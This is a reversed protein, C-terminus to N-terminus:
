SLRIMLFLPVSIKKSLNAGKFLKPSRYIIFGSVSTSNIGCLAVIVKVAIAIDLFPKILVDGIRFFADAKDVRMVLLQKTNWVATFDTDSGSPSFLRFVGATIDVLVMGFDAIVEIMDALKGLTHFFVTRGILRYRGLRLRDFCRLM